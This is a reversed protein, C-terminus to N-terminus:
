QLGKLISKIEEIRAEVKKRRSLSFIGRLDPLMAELEQKEEQLVKVREANKKLLAIRQHAQVDYLDRRLTEINDFLRLNKEKRGIADLSYNKGTYMLRGDASVGIIGSYGGSIAVVNSWGSVEDCEKEYNYHRTTTVPEALVTGDKRLGVLCDYVYAIDIIGTWKLIRSYQATSEYHFMTSKAEGSISIMGNKHLFVPEGFGLPAIAVVDHVETLNGYPSIVRGDDQLGLFGSGAAYIKKIRNWGEIKKRLFDDYPLESYFAVTGNKRLGCVALGTDRTRIASIQCIGEYKQFVTSLQGKDMNFAYVTGDARLGVLWFQVFKIQVIDSWSSDLVAFKTDDYLFSGDAKLVFRGDDAVMGNILSYKERLTAYESEGQGSKNQAEQIAANEAAIHANYDKLEAELQKSHNAKQIKSLNEGDEIEHQKLLEWYTSRESIEEGRMAIGLYAEGSDPDFDLARQFFGEAAEWNEEELAAYGRKLMNGITVNGEVKVTGSVQVTGEVKVTGKIEQVMEQIRTKDYQMGCYECEFLGGSKAMLKGGCIECQLAAM